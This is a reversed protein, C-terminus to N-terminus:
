SHAVKGPENEHVLKGETERRSAGFAGEPCKHQRDDEDIRDTQGDICDVEEAIESSLPGGDHRGFPSNSAVAFRPGKGVVVPCRKRPVM